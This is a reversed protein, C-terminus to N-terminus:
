RFGNYLSRKWSSGGFNSSLGTVVTTAEAQAYFNIHSLFFLTIIFYITKM